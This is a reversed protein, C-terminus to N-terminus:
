HLRFFLLPNADSLSFSVPSRIPSSLRRIDSTLIQFLTLLRGKYVKHTILYNNNNNNIKVAFPNEDPPLPLVILCLVCIVYMVCFLVVILRFVARLVVRFLFVVIVVVIICPLILLFIPKNNKNKNNTIVITIERTKTITKFMVFFLIRIYQWTLLNEHM